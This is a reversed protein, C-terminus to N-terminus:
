TPETLSARGTAACSHWWTPSRKPREWADLRCNRTAWDRSAWTLRSRPCSQTLLSGTERLIARRQWSKWMLATQAAKAAAFWPRANGDKGGLISTITVVRGWKQQRMRPVVFQILRATAMYNKQMVDRWVDESTREILTMTAGDAVAALMISSFTLSCTLSSIISRACTWCIRMMSRVMQVPFDAPSVTARVCGKDDADGCRCARASDGLGIGKRAEPSSHQELWQFPIRLRRRDACPSAKLAYHKDFRVYHPTRADYSKKVADVVSTDELPQYITMNALTRM